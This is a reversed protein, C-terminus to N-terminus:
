NVIWGGIKKEEWINGMSSGFDDKTFGFRIVNCVLVM